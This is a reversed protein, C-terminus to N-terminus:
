SAASNNKAFGMYDGSMRHREEPESPLDTAQSIFSHALDKCFRQRLQCQAPLSKVSVDFFYTEDGINFMSGFDHKLVYHHIDRSKKFLAATSVSADNAHKKKGSRGPYRTNLYCELTREFEATKCNPHNYKAELAAVAIADRTTVEYHPAGLFVGLDVVKCINM